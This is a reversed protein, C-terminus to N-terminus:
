RDDSAALDGPRSPSPAELLLTIPTVYLSTRSLMAHRGIESSLLLVAMDRKLDSSSDALRSAPRNPKAPAAKASAGLASMRLPMCVGGGVSWRIASTM